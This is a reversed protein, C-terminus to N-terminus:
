DELKGPDYEGYVVRGPCIQHRGGLFHAERFDDDEEGKGRLHFVVEPWERSIDKMDPLWDYWKWPENCGGDADLAYSFDSEKVKEAEWIRKLKLDDEPEITLEYCTQYGM